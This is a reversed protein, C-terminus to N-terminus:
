RASLPVPAKMPQAIAGCHASQEALTLTCTCAPLDMLKPGTQPQDTRTGYQSTYFLTMDRCLGQEADYVVCTDFPRSYLHLSVAPQNLELPNWVLHVPETPDVKASDGTSILLETTPELSVTRGQQDCGRRQYNRVRLAGQVVAMWCHQGRHNHIWSHQGPSWCLALLEFLDNKFILNRTYHADHFHLYPTLDEPQLSMTNLYETVQDPQGSQLLAHVRSILQDVGICEPESM